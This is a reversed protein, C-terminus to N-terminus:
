RLLVIALLCIQLVVGILNGLWVALRRFRFGYLFWFCYIVLFGALYIPSLSSPTTSVWEARIQAMILAPGIFGICVGAGEFINEPIEHFKM